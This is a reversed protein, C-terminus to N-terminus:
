GKQPFITLKKGPHETEKKIKKYYHLEETEINQTGVAKKLMIKFTHTYFYISRAKNGGTDSSIVPINEAKLFEMAFKINNAPIGPTAADQKFSRLMGAGGFVKAQLRKKDGGMKLIENILLEMAYMGYKGSKSIFFQEKGLPESLMFHNMGSIKHNPDYLAVTICSGLVTSIIREQRTAHYEGPFLTVIELNHQPSFRINM